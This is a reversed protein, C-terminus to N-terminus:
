SLGVAFAAFAAGVGPRGRGRFSWAALGFLLAAIGEWAIVGLFLVGNLWSPPHYRSTTKELFGFNGSAFAWDEGLLNLAKLGDLVNTTFVLGLYAGWFGLLGQKLLVVRRAPMRERSDGSMSTRGRLRM